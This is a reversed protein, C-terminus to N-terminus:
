LVKLSFCYVISSYKLFLQASLSLGTIILQHCMVLSLIAGGFSKSFSILIPVLFLCPCPPCGGGGPFIVGTRIRTCNKQCLIVQIWELTALLFFSVIDSRWIDLSYMMALTFLICQTTELHRLENWYCLTRYNVASSTTACNFPKHIIVSLETATWNTNRLM